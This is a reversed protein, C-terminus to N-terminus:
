GGLMTFILCMRDRFSASCSCTLVYPTAPSGKIETSVHATNYVASNGIFSNENVHDETDTTTVKKGPKQEARSFEQDRSSTLSEEISLFNTFFNSSKDM